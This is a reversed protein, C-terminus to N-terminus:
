KKLSVDFSEPKTITNKGFVCVPELLNELVLMGLMLIVHFDIGFFAIVAARSQQAARPDGFRIKSDLAVSRHVFQVSNQAQQQGLGVAAMNAIGDHPDLIFEKRQPRPQGGVWGM